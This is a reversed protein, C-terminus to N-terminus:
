LVAARPPVGAHCLAQFGHPIGLVGGGAAAHRAVAGMVPSFRAIAGCRLYDGYSFGGPLVVCDVGQLDTDKHWLVVGDDGLAREAVRMMDRDDNSGPFTVVGWRMMRSRRRDRGPFRRHGRERAAARVDGARPQGG